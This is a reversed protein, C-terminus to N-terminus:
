RKGDSWAPRHLFSSVPTVARAEGTVEPGPHCVRSEDMFHVPWGLDETRLSPEAAHGWPKRPPPSPCTPLIEVRGRESGASGVGMDQTGAVHWAGPIPGSAFLVSLVYPFEYIIMLHKNAFLSSPTAQDLSGPHTLQSSLGWLLEPTFLLLSSSELGQSGGTCLGQPLSSHPFNRLGPHERAPSSTLVPVSALGCQARGATTLSLAQLVLAM